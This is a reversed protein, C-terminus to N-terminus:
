EFSLYPALRQLDDETFDPLTRLDDMSNLTTRKRRLSYLAKAQRFRIYPHRQLHEVSCTNVQIKRIDSREATFHSLLTDLRMKAFPEDTLQTPTYYGGLQERYRIIQVATYRGIGRILQLEATDCHNLDLITDKKIRRAFHWGVSDRWLSDAIRFSDYRAQRERKWEARRLSDAVRFSDYRQEREAAWLAYRASDAQRMSDKREAWTKRPAVPQPADDAPMPSAPWLAIGLWISLFVAFFILAGLRQEKALIHRDKKAM